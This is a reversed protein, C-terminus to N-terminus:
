EKNIIITYKLEKENEEKTINVTYDKKLDSELDAILKTAKNMDKNANNDNNNANLNEEISMNVKNDIQPNIEAMVKNEIENSSLNTGVNSNNNTTMDPALFDLMEIEEEAINNNEETIASDKKLNINNSSNNASENEGNDEETNEKNAAVNETDQNNTNNVPESSNMNIAVDELYNFFKNPIIGSDEEKPMQDPPIIDTYKPSVIDTANQKIVNINPASEIIPIDDSKEEKNQHSVPEEEKKPNKEEKIRRDLEKVTIREEIIKKLWEDQEELSNIQLLSRAHRESIKGEVLAQQVKDSLSLLRLKNSIASQSLGMKKALEEQTLYGKDLLAKYSKAEEISSLDRRQVNEVIAVEASKRDDMTSIIAPVQTLGAMKAAKYRREGAIIEYKDGLSRLVLPQIIGHEKISNALEKLSADDFNLRPQFRNPIIDEVPINLVQMTSQTNSAINTDM